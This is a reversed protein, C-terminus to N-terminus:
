FVLVVSKRIEETFNPLQQQNKSISLIFAIYM